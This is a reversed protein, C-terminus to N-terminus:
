TSKVEEIVARLASLFTPATAAVVASNKERVAEDNCTFLSLTEDKCFCCLSIADLIHQALTEPLYPLISSDIHGM